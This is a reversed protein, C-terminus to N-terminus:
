DYCRRAFVTLDPLTSRHTTGCYANGPEPLTILKPSEVVPMTEAELYVADRLSNADLSFASTFDTLLSLFLAPIWSL